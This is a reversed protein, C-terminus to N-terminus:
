PGIWSVSFKNGVSSNLTTTTNNNARITLVDSANCALEIYGHNVLGITVSSWLTKDISAYSSGNVYLFLQQIGTAGITANNYDLIANVAYKGKQPITYQGTGVNYASATDYEVNTFIVTTDSGTISTTSQSASFNPLSTVASGGNAELLVGTVATAIPLNSANALNLASPTGLNPTTLVASTSGVFNGTGTTGSLGSNVSTITTM